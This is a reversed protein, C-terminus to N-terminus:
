GFLKLFKVSIFVILFGYYFIRQNICSVYTYCKTYSLTIITFVSLINFTIPRSVKWVHFLLNLSLPVECFAFM